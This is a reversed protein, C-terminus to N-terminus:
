NFTINLILITSFRNRELLEQKQKQKQLEDENDNDNNNNDNCSKNNQITTTTLIARTENNPQQLQM